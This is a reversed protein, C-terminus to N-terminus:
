RRVYIGRAAVILHGEANRAARGQVVVTQDLELQFLERADVPLVRGEADVVQILALGSTAPQGAHKQKCYPCDDGCAHGHGHEDGAALAPDAIVFAAQGKTWPDPVGGIRGVLTVDGPASSAEELDLVSQADAPEQGLLYQAALERRATGGGCGVVGLALFACVALERWTARM